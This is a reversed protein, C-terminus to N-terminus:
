WNCSRGALHATYPMCLTRGSLMKFSIKGAQAPEFGSLSFFTDISYNGVAVDLSAPIVEMRFSVQTRRFSLSIDQLGNPDSEETSYDAEDFNIELM